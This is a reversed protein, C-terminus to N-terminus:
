SACRPRSSRRPQGIKFLHFNGGGTPSGPRKHAPLMAVGFPFKANAKINSLNGTTHWIM